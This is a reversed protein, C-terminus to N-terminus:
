NQNKIQNFVYEGSDQYSHLIDPRLNSKFYLDRIALWKVEVDEKELKIRGRGSTYHWLQNLDM